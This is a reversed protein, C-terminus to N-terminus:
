LPIMGATAASLMQKKSKCQGSLSLNNGKLEPLVWQLTELNNGVSLESEM